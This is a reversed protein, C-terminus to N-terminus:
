LLTILILQVNTLKNTNKTQPSILKLQISNFFFVCFICKFTYPQFSSMHSWKKNWKTLLVVFYLLFSNKLKQNFLNTFNICETSNWWTFRYLINSDKFPEEQQQHWFQLKIIVKARGVINIITMLVDSIFRELKNFTLHKKQSNRIWLGFYDYLILAYLCKHTLQPHHTM